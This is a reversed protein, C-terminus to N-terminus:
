HVLVLQECVDSPLSNQLQSFNAFGQSTRFVRTGLPFGRALFGTAIDGATAAVPVVVSVTRAFACLVRFFFLVAKVM